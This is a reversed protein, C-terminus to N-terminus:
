LRDVAPPVTHDQPGPFSVALYQDLLDSGTVEPAQVVEDEPVEKRYDEDFIAILSGTM